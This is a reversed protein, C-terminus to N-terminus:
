LCTETIKTSGELVRACLRRIKQKKCLIMAAQSTFKLGADYCNNKTVPYAIESLSFASGQQQRLQTAYEAEVRTVQKTHTQTRFM